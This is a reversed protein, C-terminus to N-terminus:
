KVNIIGSSSTRVTTDPPTSVLFYVTVRGVSLLYSIFDQAPYTLPRTSPSYRNVMSVTGPYSTVDTFRLSM